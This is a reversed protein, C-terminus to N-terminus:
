RVLTVDGKMQKLPQNPLQYQFYWIYVGMPQQQNKFSGDWPENINQTEFIKQGWRNYVIFLFDVDANINLPSLFDNIGDSNPSFANPVVPKIKSRIVTVTASAKCGSITDTVTLLYDTTEETTIAVPEQCDVCNLGTSPTWLYEVPNIAEITNTLKVSDLLLIFEEVMNIKISTIALNTIVLSDCGQTSPLISEYTGETSVEIGNPLIYNQNICIAINETTEFADNITLTTEYVTTCATTLDTIEVTYTGADAVMSGDELVYNAGRCISVTNTITPTSNISLNTTIISDCGQTSPLINEYMGVTSVETGDPLEFIQGECIEINQTTEITNNINITTQFTSICGQTDAIEVTYIGSESVTQGDELTYTLGECLSIDNQIFPNPQISINTFIISDCGQSSTLINEYMGVTSIETGDPLEFIQGECIIINQTTEFADNIALTTQYSTICGTAIDTLEVIYTDAVAVTSGDELVYSEDICISVESEVMPTNIGLIITVISDCGYISTFNNAYTGEDSVIRGDPLTYNEGRCIFVWTNILDIKNVTINTRYRQTCGDNNTVSSFYFDQEMVIAGDPLTYSEGDCINVEEWITVTSAITLNTIIVSDCGQTSQLTTEYMGAVSVTTGDPL